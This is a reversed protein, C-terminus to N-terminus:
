LLQVGGAATAGIRSHCPFVVERLMGVLGRLKRGTRETPQSIKMALGVSGVVPITVPAGVRMPVIPTIRRHGAPVAEVEDFGAVGDPDHCVGRGCPPLSV